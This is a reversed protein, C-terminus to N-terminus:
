KWAELYAKSVGEFLQGTTWKEVDVPKDSLVAEREWITWRYNDYYNKLAEALFLSLVARPRKGQPWPQSQLFRVAEAPEASSARLQSGRILARTIEEEDGSKRIAPLMEDLRQAAEQLKYDKILRDIEKWDVPTSALAASPLVGFVALVALVLRLSLSRSM